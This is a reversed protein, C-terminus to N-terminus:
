EGSNGGTIQAKGAKALKSADKAVRDEYRPAILSFEANTSAKTTLVGNALSHVVQQIRGDPEIKKLCNYTRITSEDPFLEAKKLRFYYEAQKDVEKVNDEIKDVAFSSGFSKFREPPAEAGTTNRNIKAGTPKSVVKIKRVIEDHRLPLAGSKNANGAGTKFTKKHRLTAYNNDLVHICTRLYLNPFEVEQGGANYMFMPSSFRVTLDEPNISFGTTVRTTLTQVAAIDYPMKAFHEGHVYASLYQTSDGVDKALLHGLPVIRDLEIKKGKAWPSKLTGDGFGCIRFTRFVHEDALERADTEFGADFLEDICASPQDPNWWGKGPLQPGPEDDGLPRERSRTPAYSVKNAHRWRDKLKGSKLEPAVPELKLDVEYLTHGCVIAVEAPAILDNVTVGGAMMDADPLNRGVGLRVIKIRNDYTLADRCGLESLLQTLAMYSPTEDWEFQPFVSNPVASINVGTERLQAFILKLIQAPTKKFKPDLKGNADRLNFRGSITGGGTVWRWRRDLYTLNVTGAAAPPQDYSPSALACDKWTITTSGQRLTINSIRPPPTAQPQSEIFFRSPGGIGFVFQANMAPFDIGTIQLSSTLGDAM